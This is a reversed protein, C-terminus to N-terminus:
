IEIATGDPLIAKPQSNLSENNTTVDTYNQQLKKHETDTSTLKYLAMQLTANDSDFWKKRLSVKIEIKNKDILDSLENFEDSGVPFHTYYTPKSIALYACVDEIFILKYKPIIEKAKKFLINKDYAM